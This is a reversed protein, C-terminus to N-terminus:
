SKAAKMESTNAMTKHWRLSAEQGQVPCSTYEKNDAVGWWVYVVGVEMM